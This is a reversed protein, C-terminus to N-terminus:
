LEYSMKIGDEIIRGSKDQRGQPRPYLRRDSFSGDGDGLVRGTEDRPHHVPHDM